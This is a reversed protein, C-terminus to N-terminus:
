PNPHVNRWLLLLNIGVSVVLLIVLVAAILNVRAGMARLDELLEEQERTNRDTAERVLELHDEVRKLTANQDLLQGSLERQDAQLRALGEEIPALNAAKAPPATPAPQPHHPALLGAVATGVNGDLLPLLRQLLPLALRAAGLARQFGSLASSAPETAGALTRRRSQPEASATEAAPAPAGGVPLPSGVVRQPAAGLAPAAPLSAPQANAEFQSM